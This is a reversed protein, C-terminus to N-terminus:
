GGVEALATGSTYLLCYQLGEDDGDEFEMKVKNCTVADSGTNTIQYSVNVNEGQMASGGSIREIESGGYVVLSRQPVLRGAADPVGGAVMLAMLIIATFRIARRGM